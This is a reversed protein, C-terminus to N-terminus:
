LRRGSPSEIFCAEYGEILAKSYVGAEIEAETSSDSQWEKERVTLDNKSSEYAINELQDLLDDRVRILEEPRSDETAVRKEHATKILKKV